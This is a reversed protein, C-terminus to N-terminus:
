TEFLVGMVAFSNLECLGYDYIKRSNYRDKPRSNYYLVESANSNSRQVSREDEPYQERDHGPHEELPYPSEFSNDDFSPGKKQVPPYYPSLATRQKQM